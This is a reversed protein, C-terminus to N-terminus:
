AGAARESMVRDIRNDIIWESALPRQTGIGGEFTQSHVRRVFTGTLFYPAAIHTSFLYRGERDRSGYGLGRM